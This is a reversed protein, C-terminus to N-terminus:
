SSSCRDVTFEGSSNRLHTHRKKVVAYSKTDYAFLNAMIINIASQDHRHEHFTGQQELKTQDDFRSPQPRHQPPCCRDDLSCLYLWWLVQTFAFETNYILMAGSEVQGVERQRLTDSVLFQFMVPDSWGVNTLVSHKNRGLLVGGTRIVQDFYHEFEDM